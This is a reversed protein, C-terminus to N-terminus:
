DGQISIPFTSHRDLCHRYDVEHPSLDSDLIVNSDRTSSSVLIPTSATSTHESWSIVILYSIMLLHKMYQVLVHHPMTLFPRHCLTVIIHIIHVHTYKFVYLYVYTHVHVHVCKCIYVCTHTNAHTNSHTKREEHVLPHTPSRSHVHICTFVYIYIYIYICVCIYIYIYIYIYIHINHLQMLMDIYM